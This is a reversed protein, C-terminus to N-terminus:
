YSSYLATIEAVSLTRNYVRVDDITGNANMLGGGFDPGWGIRSNADTDYVLSTPLAATYELVGNIYFYINTGDWTALMHYWQNANITTASSEVLSGDGYRMAIHAPSAAAGQHLMLMYGGPNFYNSHRQKWFIPWVGNQGIDANNIRIWAAVTGGADTLELANSGPIWIQDDTGDFAIGTADVAATTEETINTNAYDLWTGNLGNGSSDALTSGSTEDLTWHGVLGDSLTSIAGPKGIAHWVAGDCYQMVSYTSNYALSGAVGSPTSCGGGGTGAIGMPIWKTGNCYQMVNHTSNYVLGGTKGAPLACVYDQGTQYLTELDTPTLARNYVRVDDIQGNWYYTGDSGRGIRFSTSSQLNGTHAVGSTAVLIGDRYLRVDAGNYVAAVHHWQDWDTYVPSTVSLHWAVAGNRLYNTMAGTDSLFVEFVSNYAYFISQKSTITADNNKVWASVTIEDNTSFNFGTATQIYDNTDFDLSTGVMGSVSDNTANLGGNMTGDYNYSTADSATTGSTEDLKWHGVLGSSIDGSMGNLSAALDVDGLTGNLVYDEASGKNEYWTAIDGSLFVDPAYGVPSSGDVGLNVPEGDLMFREVNTPDSLDVYLDSELWFDAIYGNFPSSLGLYGSSFYNDTHTFELVVDNYHSITLPSEVGDITIHRRSTDSMDFSFAVHHWNTDSITNVTTASLGNGGGTSRAVIQLTDNGLLSMFFYRTFVSTTNYFLTYGVGPAAQKIWFSGTVMKSDTFSMLNGNRLYTGGDLYVSGPIYPKEGMAIWNTSDCYQMVRHKTNFTMEGTVGLPSSCSFESYTANYLALVDATSLARNYIRVDDMYGDFYNNGSTRRGLNLNSTSSALTYTATTSQGIQVGDVYFTVTDATADHAVTVLYWRSAQPTWATTFDRYGGGYYGFVLHNDSLAFNNGGHWWLWYNNGKEIFFDTNTLPDVDFYVWTSLTFSQQGSLPLVNGMNIYDSSGDLHLTRGAMGRSSDNTASLGGTMTGTSNGISDSASTGSDEDLTWRAILGSSYDQALAPCSVCLLAPFLLLSKFKMAAMVAHIGGVSRVPLFRM